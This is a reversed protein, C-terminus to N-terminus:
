KSKSMPFGDGRTGITDNIKDNAAMAIASMIDFVNKFAAVIRPDFHTGSSETIIAYAKEQSMAKRYVRDAVLADYVDAVAMIRGSLPIDEGKIGDPYGSGDYKEHHTGAITSAYKLYRQSPISESLRELMVKGVAAHRKMAVFEDDTLKGPKLLIMDSVGIKGIDHLPAARVILELDEDTLELGFVGSELLEMGILMVYRSTRAIHGGTNEDRCEVMESISSIIGFQLIDLQEHMEHTRNAINLHVRMRQLVEDDKFPKAITDVVQNNLEVHGQGDETSDEQLIALVSVARLRKHNSLQFVNDEFSVDDATKSLIILDPLKQMGFQIAETVTRVSAFFDYHVSLIHELTEREAADDGIFFIIHESV